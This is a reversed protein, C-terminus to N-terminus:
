ELGQDKLAVVGYWDEYVMLLKKSLLRLSQFRLRSRKTRTGASSIYICSARRAAATTLIRWIKM